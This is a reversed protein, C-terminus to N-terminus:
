KRILEPRNIGYDVVRRWVLWDLTPGYHRFPRPHPEEPYAMANRCIYHHIPVPFPRKKGVYGFRKRHVIMGVGCDGYQVLGQLLYVGGANRAGLQKNREIRAQNHEWLDRDIIAPIEISISTGDSFNWTVRGWNQPCLTLCLERQNNITFNSM